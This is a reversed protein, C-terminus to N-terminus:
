PCRWIENRNPRLIRRIELMFPRYVVEITFMTYLIPKVFLL